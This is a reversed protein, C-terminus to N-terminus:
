KKNSGPKRTGGIKTDSAKKSWEEWWKIRSDLRKQMKRGPKM